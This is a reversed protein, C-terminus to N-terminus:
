LFRRHRVSCCYGHLLCEGKEVSQIRSVRRAGCRCTEMRGLDTREALPISTNEQAGERIPVFNLQQDPARACMFANCALLWEFANVFQRTLVYLGFEVAIITNLLFQLIRPSCNSLIPYRLAGSDAM